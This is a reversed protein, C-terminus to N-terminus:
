IDATCAMIRVPKPTQIIVPNGKNIVKITGRQFGEKINLKFGKKM